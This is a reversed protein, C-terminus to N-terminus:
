VGTLVTQCCDYCILLGQREMVTHISQNIFRCRQCEWGFTRGTSHQPRDLPYVVQTSYRSCGHCHGKTTMEKNLTDVHMECNHGDDPKVIVCGPSQGECVVVGLSGQGFSVRCGEEIRQRLDNEIAFRKNM